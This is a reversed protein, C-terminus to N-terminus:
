LIPFSKRLSLTAFTTMLDFSPPCLVKIFGSFYMGFYVKQNAVRKHYTVDCISIKHCSNSDSTDEDDDGDDDGADDDDDDGDDNNDYPQGNKRMDNSKKRDHNCVICHWKSSTLFCIAATKAFFNSNLNPRQPQKLLLTEMIVGKKKQLVLKGSALTGSQEILM